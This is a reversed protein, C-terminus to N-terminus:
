FLLQVSIFCELFSILGVEPRVRTKSPLTGASAPIGLAPKGQHGDNPRCANHPTAMLEVLIQLRLPNGLENFLEAPAELSRKM